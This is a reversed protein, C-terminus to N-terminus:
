AEPGALARKTWHLVLRFIAELGAEPLPGGNAAQLAALLRAEQAPDEFCLGLAAKRAKLAGVLAIRRNLLDLLARDVEAIRSRQSLIESDVTV